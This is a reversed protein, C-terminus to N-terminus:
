LEDLLRLREEGEEAMTGDEDTTVTTFWDKRERNREEIGELVERVDEPLGRVRERTAGGFALSGNRHGDVPVRLGARVIDGRFWWEKYLILAVILVVIIGVGSLIGNWFRNWRQQLRRERAKWNELVVSLNDMRRGLDEAKRAMERGRVELRGVREEREEFGARFREVRGRTDTDLRKAEQEFNAVLASSQKSLSQFSQITSVLSGVKELLNYYGYDLRRTIEIGQSNVDGIMNRMEEEAEVLEEDKKKVDAQTVTFRRQRKVREARELEAEIENQRRPPPRPARPDSTTRRLASREYPLAHNYMNDARYSRSSMMRTLGPVGSQDTYVGHHSYNYGHGRYEHGEYREKRQREAALGAM